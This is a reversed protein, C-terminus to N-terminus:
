KHVIKIDKGYGERVIGSLVQACIYIYIYIIYICVVRSPAFQKTNHQFPEECMYVM